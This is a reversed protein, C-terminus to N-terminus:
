SIFDCAIAFRVVRRFLVGQVTFNRRRKQLSYVPVVYRFVLGLNQSRTRHRFLTFVNENYIVVFNGYVHDIRITKIDFTLSFLTM